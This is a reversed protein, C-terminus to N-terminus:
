SPVAARSSLGSQPVPPLHEYRVSGRLRLVFDTGFATAPTLAGVCPSRELAELAQVASEATFAYGEATELWAEQSLGDRSSARAWCSRSM